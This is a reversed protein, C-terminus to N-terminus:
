EEMQQADWEVLRRAMWKEAIWEMRFWPMTKTSM